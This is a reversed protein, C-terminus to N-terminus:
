FPIDDYFQLEVGRAPVEHRRLFEALRVKAENCRDLAEQLGEVYHPSGPMPCAGRCQAWDDGSEARCKDCVTV